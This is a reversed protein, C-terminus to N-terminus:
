RDAADNKKAPRDMARKWVQYTQNGTQFRVPRPEGPQSYARRLTDSKIEYIGKITDGGPTTVDFAKPNQQTYLRFSYQDDVQQVGIRLKLRYSNGGVTRTGHRQAKPLREAINDRYYVFDVLSWKGQMLILDGDIQQRSGDDAAIIPPIGIILAVALLATLCTMPRRVHRRVFLVTSHQM